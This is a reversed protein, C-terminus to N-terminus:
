APSSNHVKQWVDAFRGSLIATRIPILQEVRPRRCRMGPSCLHAQYQKAGGEIMGSSIGYEERRLELYNMRSQHECFHGAARRLDDAGQPLANPAQGLENAIRAALRQYLATARSNFWL